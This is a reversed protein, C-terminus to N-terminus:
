NTNQFECFILRFITRCFTDASVFKTGGLNLRQLLEAIVIIGGLNLRQLLVAFSRCLSQLDAFCIGVQFTQILQYM